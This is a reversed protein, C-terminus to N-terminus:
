PQPPLLEPVLSEVFTAKVQFVDQLLAATLVEHPGGNGVLRGDALALVRDFRYAARLDHLSILVTSGVVPFAHPPGTRWTPSTWPRWPRMWATTTTAGPM